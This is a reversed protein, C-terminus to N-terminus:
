YHGINNPKKPINEEEMRKQFAEKSEGPSPWVDSPRHADAMMKNIKEVMETNDDSIDNQQQPDTKLNYLELKAGNAKHAYHDGWRIAQNQNHEWYLYEHQKQVGNGTLTPFISLGDLGAPPSVRALDAATPLFDWFAWIHDSVSGAAIHGPWRAMAPVHFGGDYENSKHGRTPSQHKFFESLTPGEKVDLYRKEYGHSSNGNDSAFFIITNDDLGLSELLNMLKGVETDMRSVMAAWEKHQIPWDKDKYEGLEPVILPGHPVTNALYLFFPQDKNEKVFDLAKENIIDFSYVASSPDKIGNPIVKGEEDYASAKFYNEIEYHNQNGPFFVKEQNHYLFQPYYTHAQRQNLYGFFEDFGMKNPIGPQNELALGWKGFLGTKYGAEKLLMAVTYDGEQLSERYSQYSNGRVRAHGQHLGQMLSSRSPACVSSGAYANTFKIGEYAIRDINPTKIKEQGYCGLDGWSLDDSLIFIINPSREEKIEKKNSTCSFCVSFALTLSIIYSHYTRTINM